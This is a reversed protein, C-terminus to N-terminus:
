DSNQNDKLYYYRKKESKKAMILAKQALEIFEKKNMGKKFEVVGISIGLKLRSFNEIPLDLKSVSKVLREVVKVVECEKIDRMTVAFECSTLRALIDNTRIKEKLLSAINKLIYDGKEYGHITNINRFNDVDIIALALNQKYRLVRSIELGLYDHFYHQNYLGTNNDIVAANKSRENMEAHKVAIAVEYSITTLIELDDIDFIVCGKKNSVNVVGIVENGFNLPIVILSKTYYKKENNKKFREDEEINPIFLAKGTEAVYGSIGEGKKTKIKSIRTEPFGISAKISLYKKEEDLLMVTVRECELLNKIQLIIINLIDTLNLNKILEHRICDLAQLQKIKKSLEVNKKLIEYELRQRDKVIEYNKLNREIIEPLLSLYSKNKVIYDLAGRRMAQVAIEESGKGTIMITPTDYSKNEKIMELLQLGDYDPIAYDLLILDYVNEYLRKLCDKGNNAVNVQYNHETLLDSLIKTIMKDDDVILIKKNKM